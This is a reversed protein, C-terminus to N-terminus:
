EPGALVFTDGPGPMMPLESRLFAGLDHILRAVSTEALRHMGLADIADGVIGLPPDYTGEFTLATHGPAAPALQVAGTMAPFLGPTRRSRWTLDIRTSPRVPPAAEAETIGTIELEVEAALELAGVRVRLEAPADRPDTAARTARALIGRPDATLADRVQDYPRDIDDSCRLEHRRTM